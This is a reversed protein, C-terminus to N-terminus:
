RRGRVALARAELAFPRDPGNGLLKELLRRRLGAQHDLPLSTLYTGSAGQGRVFPEWLDDFSVFGSSIVLSTEEIQRFGVERWLASLEGSGYDRTQRREEASPDLEVAAEWFMRHLEMGQRDWVCAAVVGDVRTVRRMEGVAKSVDPIQRLVLLSLSKDFSADPHSPAQADGVEYIMRSDTTRSRAYDIFPASPDIGVIESWRTIAAVAQALSGTGCGVDLVRDGDKVAAFEVFLPALRRSWRGMDREYAEANSFKVAMSGWQLALNQTKQFEEGVRM